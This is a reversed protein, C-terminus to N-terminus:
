LKKAWARKNKNLARSGDRLLQREKSVLDRLADNYQQQSWNNDKGHQLVEDMQRALNESVKKAHKGKHISRTPHLTGDTPLFMKNNRSHLDYGAAKILAHNKANNKDSM